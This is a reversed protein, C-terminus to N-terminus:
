GKGTFRASAPRPRRTGSTVCSLALIAQV